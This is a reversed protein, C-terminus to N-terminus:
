MLIMNLTAGWFLANAVGQVDLVCDSLLDYWLYPLSAGQHRTVVHMLVELGCTMRLDSALSPRVLLGKIM